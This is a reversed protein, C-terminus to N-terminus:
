YCLLLTKPFCTDESVLLLSSPNELSLKSSLSLLKLALKEAHMQVHGCLGKWHIRHAKSSVRFYM